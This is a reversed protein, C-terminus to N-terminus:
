RREGKTVLPQDLANVLSFSWVARATDATVGGAGSSAAPKGAKVVNVAALRQGKLLPSTALENIWMNLAAPEFMFGDLEFRGADAKILTVWATDPISRAVLALRAAHGEGPRFVGQQLNALTSELRLLETRRAVLDQALALEAPVVAAQRQRLTMRLGELVTTQTQLVQRLAYGQRYLRSLEYLGYVAGMVALVGLALAMVRASFYLRQPVVYLNVQQPM